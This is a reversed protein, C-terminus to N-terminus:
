KEGDKEVKEFGFERAFVASSRARMKGDLDHMVNDLAQKTGALAEIRAKVRRLETVYVYVRLGALFLVVAIATFWFVQTPTINFEGM